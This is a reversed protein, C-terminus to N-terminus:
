TKVIFIGCIFRKLAITDAISHEQDFKLVEAEESDLNQSTVVANFDMEKIVLVEVRIKNCIKKRNRAILNCLKKIFYRVSLRKQHELYGKIATPLNNPQASELEARINECSEMWIGMIHIPELLRIILNLYSIHKEVLARAMVVGTSIITVRMEDVRPQYRNNVIHIDESLYAKLFALTSKKAFADMVLVHRTSILIDRMANESERANTCSSM